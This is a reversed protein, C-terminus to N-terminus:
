CSVPGVTIGQALGTAGVILEREFLDAPQKSRRVCQQHLAVLHNVEPSGIWNFKVPDFRVNAVKMVAAAPM